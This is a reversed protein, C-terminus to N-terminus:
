DEGVLYLRLSGGESEVRYVSSFGEWGHLSEVLEISKAKARVAEWDHVVSLVSFTESTGLSIELCRAV